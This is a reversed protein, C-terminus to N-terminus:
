DSSLGRQRKFAALSDPRPAGGKEEAVHGQPRMVALLAVPALTIHRYWGDWQRVEYEDLRVEGKAEEFGIEVQWRSGAARVLDALVTDSPAFALYGTLDERDEGSRRVLLWRSCGAQEPSHLLVRGWDDERLGKAGDGVSLRQWATKSDEHRDTLLESVRHQRGEVWLYTKCFLALVFPHGGTELMHRLERSDGYVADAVVWAPTIGVAFARELMQEALELKTAFSVAEPM